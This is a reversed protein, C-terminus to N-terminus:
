LVGFLDYEIRFGTLGNKQKWSGVTFSVSEIRFKVVRAM